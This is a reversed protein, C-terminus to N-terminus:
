IFLGQERITAKLKMSLRWKHMETLLYLINVRRDEENDAENASSERQFVYYDAENQEIDRRNRKLKVGKKIIYAAKGKVGLYPISDLNFSIGKRIKLEQIEKLMSLAITILHDLDADKEM